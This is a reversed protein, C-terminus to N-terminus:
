FALSVRHFDVGNLSSGADLPGLAMGRVHPKVLLYSVGHAMFVWPARDVIAREALRYLPIRKVPDTEARAADLRRDVEPDAFHTRNGQDAAQRSHFLVYLFNDPDPYDAVWALRFLDPEGAVTAKMLTAFDSTKLKVTVGIKKLDAQVQEAVQQGNRVPRYWLTVPPPTMGPGFGGAALEARAKALDFTYGALDPDYAPIGPPLVGKAPRRSGGLIKECVFRRNIAYNLARRLHVNKGLPGRAMTIGLYRTDANPVVRVQDQRPGKRERQIYEPPLVCHDLEGAVYAEYATSLEYIIRVEIGGLSAPGRFYDDFRRLRFREKPLWQVLSFAGSGVPQRAFAGADAEVKDRPVVACNVMTLHQIFPPFPKALRIVVTHDDPTTIGRLARAKGARVDQAGLVPAVVWPRVDRGALRSLSYAVDQAVVPRGHHFRAGRRLRFTYTLQDDSVAWSEALDGIVNMKADHRVLTSFLRRAIGWSYADVIDAPDLTRADEELAMRYVARVPKAPAKREGAAPQRGCGVLFAALLLCASLPWPRPAM